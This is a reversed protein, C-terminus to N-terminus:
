ILDGKSVEDFVGVAHDTLHGQLAKHQPTLLPLGRSPPHQHLHHHFTGWYLPLGSIHWAVNWSSPRGGAPCTQGILGEASLPSSTPPSDARLASSFRLRLKGKIYGITPLPSGPLVRPPAQSLGSVLPNLNQSGASVNQFLHFM